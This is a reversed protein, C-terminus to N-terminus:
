NEVEQITRTKITQDTYLFIKGGVAKAMSIAEEAKYIKQTSDNDNFRVLKYGDGTRSVAYDVVMVIYYAFTTNSLVENKPSGVLM